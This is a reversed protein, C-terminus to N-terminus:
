RELIMHGVLSIGVVLICSHPAFTKLHLLAYWKMNILVEAEVGTPWLPASYFSLINLVSAFVPLWLESRSLRSEWQYTM